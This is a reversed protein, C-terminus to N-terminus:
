SVLGLIYLHNQIYRVLVDRWGADRWGALTKVNISLYIRCMWRYRCISPHNFDWWTSNAKRHEFLRGFGKWSINFLIYQSQSAIHNQSVSHVVKNTLLWTLGLGWSKYRMNNESTSLNVNVLQCTSLNFLTPHTEWSKVPWGPHDLM